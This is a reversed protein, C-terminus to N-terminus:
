FHNVRWLDRLERIHGTHTDVHRANAVLWQYADLPGFVSHDIFHSRLDGQVGHAFTLTRERASEFAALADALGSTQGTPVIAEPALNVGKPVVTSRVRLERTTREEPTEPRAPTAMARNVIGVLHDDALSLHEVYDLISWREPAPKWRAEDDTVGELAERLSTRTKELLSVARVREQETMGGDESPWTDKNRRYKSRQLDPLIGARVPPAITQGM